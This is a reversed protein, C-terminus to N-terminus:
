MVDTTLFIDIQKIIFGLRAILSLFEDPNDTNPQKKWVGYEGVVRLCEVYVRVEQMLEERKGSSFEQGKEIYRDIKEVIEREVFAKVSTVMVGKDLLGM